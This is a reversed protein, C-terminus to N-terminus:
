IYLLQKINFWYLQMRSLQKSEVPRTYLAPENEMGDFTDYRSFLNNAADLVRMTNAPGAVHHLLPAEAPAGVVGCAIRQQQTLNSGSGHVLRQNFIVAQGERM